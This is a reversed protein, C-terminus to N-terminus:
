FKLKEHAGKAQIAKIGFGNIGLCLTFVTIAWFLLDIALNPYDISKFRTPIVLM